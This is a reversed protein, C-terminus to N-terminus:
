NWNISNWDIQYPESAFTAIEERIEFIPNFQLNMEWIAIQTDM